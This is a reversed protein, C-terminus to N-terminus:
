LTVLWRYESLARAGEDSIVNRELNLTRLTANSRLAAALARAGENGVVNDRLDLTLLSTDRMALVDALARAGNAGIQNESLDLSEIANPFARALARVGDDGLANTGLNLVTLKPLAKAMGEGRIAEALMRAGRTGFGNYRADLQRLNSFAGCRLAWVFNQPLARLRLVRVRERMVRRVAVALARNSCAAHAADQPSLADMEVALALAEALKTGDDRGGDEEETCAGGGGDARAADRRAGARGSGEGAGAATRAPLALSALSPVLAEM